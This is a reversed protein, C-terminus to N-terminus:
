GGFLHYIQLINLSYGFYNVVFYAAFIIIYGVIAYTIGQQAMAIKKPDGASFMYQFGSFILYGLLAFGAIPFFLTVLSNIINGPTTSATLNPAVQQSLSGFDVLTIHNYSPM